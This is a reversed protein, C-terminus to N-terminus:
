LRILLPLYSVLLCCLLYPAPHPSHATLLPESHAHSSHAHGTPPARVEVEGRWTLQGDDEEMFNTGYLQERQVAGKSLKFVEARPSSCLLFFLTSIGDDDLICM